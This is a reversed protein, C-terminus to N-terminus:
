IGDKRPECTPMDPWVRNGKTINELKPLLQLNEWTHLGCVLKSRIPVIHDVEMGFYEAELYVDLIAQQDAWPPTAQKIRKLYAANTTNVRGKNAKKWEKSKQPLAAIAKQGKETARYRAQTIKRKETLSHRAYSLKRKETKNYKAQNAKIKEPNNKNWAILYIKRKETKNYKAQNAKIKEPNAQEWAKIRERDCKKCVNGHGDSCARNTKFLDIRKTESCKICTKNM